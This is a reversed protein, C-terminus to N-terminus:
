FKSVVHRAALANTNCETHWVNILDCFSLSFANKKAKFLVWVEIPGDSSSFPRISRKEWGYM